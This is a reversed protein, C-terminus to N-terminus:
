KIRYPNSSFSIRVQVGPTQACLKKTTLWLDETTRKTSPSVLRVQSPPVLYYNCVSEDRIVTHM